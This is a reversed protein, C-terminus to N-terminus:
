VALTIMAVGVIVVISAIRKILSLREKDVVFALYATVLPSASGIAAPVSVSGLRELSVFVGINGLVGGITGILLYRSRALEVVSRLRNKRVFFLFMLFSIVTGALEFLVVNQYWAQDAAYDFLAFGLGFLIMAIVALIAANNKDSKKSVPDISRSLVIIGGVVVATGTIQLISPQESLFAVSILLTIIAYSNAIPAVIGAAGLKFAHILILFGSSVTLGALFFKGLGVLTVEPLGFVLAISLAVFFHTLSFVLSIASPDREKSLKSSAFDFIGYGLFPLLSAIVYLM